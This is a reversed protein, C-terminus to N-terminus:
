PKPPPPLPTSQLNVLNGLTEQNALTEATPSLDFSAMPIIAVGVGARVCSSMGLCAPMDCADCEESPQTIGPGAHSALAVCHPSESGVTPDAKALAPAALVGIHALLLLTAIARFM